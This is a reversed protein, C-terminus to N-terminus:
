IGSSYPPGALSVFKLSSFCSCNPLFPCECSSATCPLLALHRIPEWLTVSWTSPENVCPVDGLPRASPPQQPTLVSTQPGSTSLTGGWDSTQPGSTSPVMLTGGWDGHHPRASEAGCVDTLVGSLVCRIM